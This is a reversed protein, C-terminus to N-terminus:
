TKYNEAMSMIFKFHCNIVREEYNRLQIGAM